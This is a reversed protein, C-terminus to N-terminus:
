RYEGARGAACIFRAHKRQRDFLHIQHAVLFRVGDIEGLSAFLEECLSRFDERGLYGSGKDLGAFSALASLWFAKSEACVRDGM